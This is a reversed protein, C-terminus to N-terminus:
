YRGHYSDTRANRAAEIVSQSAKGKSEIFLLGDARPPGVALLNPIGLVTPRESTPTAGVGASILLVHDAPWRFREHLQRSAVQPVQIQVRQRQANYSPVDIMVPVLSEVQEVQCRIVADITRGDASILPSLELSYGEEVQGMELEYGALNNDLLRVGRIYNRPRVRSLVQSQGNHILLNPSNHELYDNRKSLEGILIAANEKTLLWADVGPTQVSVPKLLHHATTRWNPSGVTALRLSLVHSEAQSALFRDVVDAVVQQMEPTHYVRLKDRGASLLGLPESFWVETGTERLIWDILAQEPRATNAVKSTYSSIDYERWVQGASRDLVASTSTVASRSPSASSATATPAAASAPDALPTFQAPVILAPATAAASSAPTTTGTTFTAAPPTGAPVASPVRFRPAAAAPEAGL